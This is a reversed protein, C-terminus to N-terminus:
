DNNGRLIKKAFLKIPAPCHKKAKNYIKKGFDSNKTNIHSNPISKPKKKLNQIIIKKILEFQSIFDYRELVFKRYDQSEYEGYLIEKTFDEPSNFLYKKKYIGEAGFFNYVLPKIGKIMAEMVAINQSEIVSSSVIYSKDSLWGDVNKNQIEGNYFVNKSLGLQEILFYFKQEIVPDVFKGAFFMQYKKNKQYLNNFCQLAFLPDKHWHMRGLYAIKYGPKKNSFSYKRSDIGNPIIFIKKEIGPNKELIMEKIYEAIVIVSDISNWNIQKLVEDDYAEYRHIRLIIPTNLDPINSAAVIPGNGWEFWAVDCEGLQHHLIENDGNYNYTNTKYGNGLGEIIPKLFQFNNDDGAWFGIKKINDAEFLYTPTANFVAKRKYGFKSLYLEIKNLQKDDIIEVYILPHDRTLISRAGKLVDLEAGEVDVKILDIKSTKSLLIQDLTNIEIEGQANPIIQGMGPNNKDPIYLKGHGLRAGVGCNFLKVNDKLQNLAINEKLQSHADESPEFSYVRSGCILGFFVSHTGIHAGADVVTSDGYKIRKKIDALMGSEYFNHESLMIKQIHDESNTILFRVLKNEYNFQLIKKNSAKDM